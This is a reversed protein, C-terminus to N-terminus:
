WPANCHVTLVHSAVAKLLQAGMAATHQVCFGAVAIPAASRLRVEAATATNASLRTVELIQLCEKVKKYSENHREFVFGNRVKVILLDPVEAITDAIWHPWMSHAERMTQDVAVAKASLHEHVSRLRGSSVLKFTEM